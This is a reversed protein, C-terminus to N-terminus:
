IIADTKLWNNYYDYFNCFITLNDALKNVFQM